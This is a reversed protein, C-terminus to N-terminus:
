RHGNISGMLYKNQRFIGFTKDGYSNFDPRQNNKYSHPFARRYKIWNNKAIIVFQEDVARGCPEIKDILKEAGSRTLAYAHACLPVPAAARGECWGLFLIDIGKMQSLEEIITSNLDKISNMADDEFIVIIDDPKYLTGHKVM